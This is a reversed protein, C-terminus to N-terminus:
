TFRSVNEDQPALFQILTEGFRTVNQWDHCTEKIDFGHKQGEGFRTVNKGSRPV